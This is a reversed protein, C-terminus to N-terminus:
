AVRLRESRAVREVASCYGAMHMSVRERRSRECVHEYTRLVGTEIEHQLREPKSESSVHQVNNSWEVHAAIVDGSAGVLDPVVAVDHSALTREAAPTIVLESAEVVLRAQIRSAASDNLMCEPGAVVLADCELTHVEATEAAGEFGLLSGTQRLHLALASMDIGTSCRLGGREEALGVIVCDMQALALATEFATCDPSQLAVRLGTIPAGNEQACRVVLAALARATLKERKPLGGVQVSKGLVASVTGKQLTSYEDGIWTMVESDSNPGPLCVDQYIGLVHHVRATYRRTLRELERRSFQGPDCALGGSAGGFPVNAVACRWTMSEASARLVDIELGPQFRVPGLVPGRVGNHQVRYGRFLQLRQDDRRLPIEVTLERFPVSLLRRMEPHIGLREAAVDFYRRICSSATERVGIATGLRM